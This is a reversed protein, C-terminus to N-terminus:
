LHLFGREPLVKAGSEKAIREETWYEQPMELVHRTTWQEFFEFSDVFVGAGWITELAYKVADDGSLALWEGNRRLGDRKAKSLITHEIIGAPQQFSWFLGYVKPKEPFATSLSKIRSAPNTSYGVKSRDSGESSIIYCSAFGACTNRSRGVYKMARDIDTPCKVRRLLQDFGMKYDVCPFHTGGPFRRLVYGFPQRALAGCPLKDAPM